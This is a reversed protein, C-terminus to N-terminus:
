QQDQKEIVWAKVIDVKKDYTFPSTKVYTELTVYHLVYIKTNDYKINRELVEKQDLTRTLENTYKYGNGVKQPVVFSLLCFTCLACLVFFGPIIAKKLLNINFTKKNIM